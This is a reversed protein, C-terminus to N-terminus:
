VATTTPYSVLSSMATSCSRCAEPSLVTVTPSEDATLTPSVTTPMPLAPPRPPGGAAAAPLTVARPCIIVALSWAEPVVSCSVPIIRVLAFMWAPSEPPGSTFLWPWTIPM